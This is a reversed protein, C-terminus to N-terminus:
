DDEGWGDGGRGDDPGNGMATSTDPVAGVQLRQEVGDVAMLGLDHRDGGRTAPTGASRAPRRARRAWSTNGAGVVGIAAGAVLRQRVPQMGAARAQDHEGAVHLQQGLAEECRKGAATM